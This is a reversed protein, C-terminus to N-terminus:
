RGDLDPRDRYGPAGSDDVRPRRTRRRPAEDQPQRGIRLLSSGVWVVGVLVVLGFVLVGVGFSGSTWATLGFLLELAVLGIWAFVLLVLILIIKGM